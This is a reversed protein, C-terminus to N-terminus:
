EKAAHTNGEKHPVPDYGYPGGPRCKCVRKTILWLATHTHHSQIAELAYASCSPEFRCSGGLHTTGLTRYASVLFWLFGKSIKEYSKWVGIWLKLM